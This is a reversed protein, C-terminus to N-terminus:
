PGVSRKPPPAKQAAEVIACGDCHPSAPTGPRSDKWSGITKWFVIVAALCAAGTVLWDQWEM